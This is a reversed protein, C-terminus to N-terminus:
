RQRKAFLFLYASCRFNNQYKTKTWPFGFNSSGWDSITEVALHRAFPRPLERQNNHVRERCKAPRIWVNWLMKKLKWIQKNACNNFLQIRPQNKFCQDHRRHKRTASSLFRVSLEGSCRPYFTNNNQSYTVGGSSDEKCSITHIYETNVNLRNKKESLRGFEGIDWHM